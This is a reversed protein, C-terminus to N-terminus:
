AEGFYEAYLDANEEVRVAHLRVGDPLRPRIGDWIYVALGETSPLVGGDRFQALNRHIAKGDLRRIVEEDLIRDLLGLDMVLEANPRIPGKVTVVCRYEHSHEDACAGFAARNREASWDPKHYRHQASFHVARTLYAIM